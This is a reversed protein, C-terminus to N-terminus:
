CFEFGTGSAWRDLALAQIRDRLPEFGAPPMSTKRNDTNHQWTSTGTVPRDSMWLRGVSQTVTASRSVELILRGQGADPQQALCFSFDFTRSCGEKLLEGSFNQLFKREVVLFIIYNKHVWFSHFDDFLSWLWFHSYCSRSTVCCLM